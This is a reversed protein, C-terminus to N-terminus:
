PYVKIFRVNKYLTKSAHHQTKGRLATKVHVSFRIKSQGRCLQFLQAKLRSKPEKTLAFFLIGARSSPLVMLVLEMEGWKGIKVGGSGIRRTIGLVSNLFGL